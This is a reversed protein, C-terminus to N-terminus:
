AFAGVGAAEGWAKGHDQGAQAEALGFIAEGSDAELYDSYTSFSAEIGLGGSTEEDM